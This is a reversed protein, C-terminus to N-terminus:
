SEYAPEEVAGSVWEALVRSPMVLSSWLQTGVYERYTDTARANDSPPPAGTSDLFGRDFSAADNRRDREQM